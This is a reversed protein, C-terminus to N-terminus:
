LYGLGGQRKRATRESEANAQESSRAPGMGRMAAWLKTFFGAAAPEFLASYDPAEVATATRTEANLGDPLEIADNETMRRSLQANPDVTDIHHLDRLAHH